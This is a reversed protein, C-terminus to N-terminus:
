QQLSFFTIWIHATLVFGKQDRAIQSVVIHQIKKRVHGVQCAEVRGALYANVFLVVYALHIYLQINYLTM